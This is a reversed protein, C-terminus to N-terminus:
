LNELIRFVIAGTQILEKKLEIKSGKFHYLNLAARISEGAEENMIAVQYVIDFQEMNPHKIKALHLENKIKNIIEQLEM